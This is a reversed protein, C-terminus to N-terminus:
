TLGYLIFTKLNIRRIIESFSYASRMYSRKPQELKLVALFYILIIGKHMFSTFINTPYNNYLAYFHQLIKLFITYIYLPYNTFFYLYFILM